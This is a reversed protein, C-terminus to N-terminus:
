AAPRRGTFGGRIQFVRSRLDDPPLMPNILPSLAPDSLLRACAVACAPDLALEEDELELALAYLDRAAARVRQECGAAPGRVAARIFAAFTRRRDMTTERSAHAVVDPIVYADREDALQDLLAWRRWFARTGLTGVVVGGLFLPLALAPHVQTAALSLGIALAALGFGAWEEHRLERLHMAADDVARAFMTSSSDAGVHEVADTATGM